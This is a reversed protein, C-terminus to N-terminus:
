FRGSLVLGPGMGGRKSGLLAPALKVQKIRTVRSPLANLIALVIVLAHFRQRKM